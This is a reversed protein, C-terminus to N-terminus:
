KFIKSLQKHYYVVGNEGLKEKNPHCACDGDETEWHDQGDQPLVHLHYRETGKIQYYSTVWQFKIISLQSKVQNFWFKRTFWLGLGIMVLLTLAWGM